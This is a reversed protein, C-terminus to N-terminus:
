AACLLHGFESHCWSCLHQISTSGRVLMHPGYLLAYTDSYQTRWDNLSEAYTYLGLRAVVRDGKDWQRHIEVFTGVRLSGVNHQSSSGQLPKANLTLYSTLPDVWSPIRLHITCGRPSFCSTSVNESHLPSLQSRSERLPAFEISIMVADCSVLQLDQSLHLLVGGARWRVSSSMFQSVWLAPPSVSEQQSGESITEFYVGHALKAFSEVGTGYCCWFSDEPSGYGAWNSREQTAPRPDLNDLSARPRTSQM